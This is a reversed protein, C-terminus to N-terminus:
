GLKGPIYVLGLAKMAKRLEAGFVEDGSRNVYYMGYSLTNSRAPALDYLRYVLQGLQTIDGSNVVAKTIETQAAVCRPHNEIEKFSARLGEQPSISNSILLKADFYMFCPLVASDSFHVSTIKKTSFDELNNIFNMQVQAFVGAICIFIVAGSAAAARISFLKVSNWSPLRYANGVLFGGVAWILYKHSLTIPSIFSNTLYIFIFLALVFLARRNMKQSDWLILISRVVLAILFLYALTGFVGLTALTQVSASHADNSLINTYNKVDELTRYHEYYNGYQDPGVGLFPHSFFQRMGALWFNSRIKVQIDNGLVPIFDGLFPMLFIFEAWIIVALTGLFTRKNLSIDPRPIFHRVTYIAFGVLVFAIDLYGQLPGALYLSYANALAAIALCIRLKKGGEFALLLLIPFTTGVFAAFFDSNGLTSAIGQDGPFELLNFHQAFGFLVVLEIAVLYFKLLSIFAEFKFQTHFIAVGLLALASATGAFRGADGILSGVLNGSLLLSASQAIVLAIVGYSVLKPFRFREPKFLIFLSFISAVVLLNFLQAPANKDFIHRFLNDPIHLVALAIFAFGALLVSKKEALSPRM